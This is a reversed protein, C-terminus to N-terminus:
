KIMIDSQLFPDGSAFKEKCLRFPYILAQPYSAAINTIIGAIANQITSNLNALLQPIWELFM